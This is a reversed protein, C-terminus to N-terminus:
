PDRAQCHLCNENNPEKKNLCWCYILSCNSCMNMGSLNWTNYHQVTSCKYCFKNECMECIEFVNDYKGCKNCKIIDFEELVERLKKIEDDRYKNEEIVKKVVFEAINKPNNFM